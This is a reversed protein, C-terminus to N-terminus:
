VAKLHISFNGRRYPSNDEVPSVDKEKVLCPVGNLSELYYTEGPELYFTREIKNGCVVEKRHASINTLQIQGTFRIRCSRDSIRVAESRRSSVELYDSSPQKKLINTYYSSISTKFLASGVSVVGIFFCAVAAYRVWGRKYMPIVISEEQKEEVGMTTTIKQWTGALMDEIGEVEPEPFIEEAEHSYLWAKVFKKEVDDCLGQHYRKLLDPTIKM